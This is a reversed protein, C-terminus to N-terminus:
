VPTYGSQFKDFDTDGTKQCTLRRRYSKSTLICVLIAFFNTGM